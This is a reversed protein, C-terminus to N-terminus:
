DEKVNKQNKIQKRKKKESESLYNKTTIVPRGMEKEANKRANGCPSL